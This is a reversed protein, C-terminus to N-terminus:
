LIVEGSDWNKKFVRYKKKLKTLIVVIRKTPLGSIERLYLYVSKRSIIDLEHVNDFLVAVAMLIAMDSESLNAGELRWWEIQRKLCKWFEKDENIGETEFQVAFNKDNQYDKIEEFSIEKRVILNKKKHIFWNRTVITFYSFASGKSKKYKDLITILFVLCDEKLIEINPLTNYRYTYVIKNILQTFVPQLINKYIENRKEIDTEQVYDLIAQEHFKTFYAKKYFSKKKKVLNQTQLIQSL